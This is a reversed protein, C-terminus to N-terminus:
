GASIPENGDLTIRVGELPEGDHQVNGRFHYDFEEAPEDTAAPEDTTAPEETAAVTSVEEAMAPSAAIGSLTLASLLIGLLILWRGPSRRAVAQTPEM